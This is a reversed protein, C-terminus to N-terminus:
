TLSFFGPNMTQLILATLFLLALSLLAQLIRTKAQTVADPSAGGIMIQGGSIVMILVCLIGIVAALYKYILRVYNQILDYGDKGRVSKFGLIQERLQICYSNNALIDKGGDTCDERMDGFSNKSSGDGPTPGTSEPLGPAASTAKETFNALPDFASVEEGFLSFGLILCLGIFCKKMVKKIDSFRFVVQGGVQRGFSRCLIFCKSLSSKLFRLPFFSFSNM